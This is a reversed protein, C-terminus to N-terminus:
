FWKKGVKEGVGDLGSKISFSTCGGPKAGTLGGCGVGGTLSAADQFNAVDWYDFWNFIHVSTSLNLFHRSIIVPFCFINLDVFIM